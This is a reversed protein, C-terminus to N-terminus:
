NPLFLKQSQYSIACQAGIFCVKEGLAGSLGPSGNRGALGQVYFYLCVRSSTFLLSSDSFTHCYIFSHYSALSITSGKAMGVPVLALDLSYLLPTSPLKGKTILDDMGVDTQSLQILRTEKKNM